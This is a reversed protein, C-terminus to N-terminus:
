GIERFTFLKALEPHEYAIVRAYIPVLNSNLRFDDDFDIELRAEWRFREALYRAGIRTMGRQRCDRVLAVLWDLVDPNRRDFEEFVPWWPHQMAEHILGDTYTTEM